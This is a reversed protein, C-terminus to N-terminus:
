KGQANSTRTHMRLRQPGNEAVGLANSDPDKAHNVSQLEDRNRAHLFVRSLVGLPDSLSRGAASQAGDHTPSNAAEQVSKIPVTGVKNACAHLASRLQSHTM